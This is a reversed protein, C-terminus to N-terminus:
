RGEGALIYSTAPAPTLSCVSSGIALFLNSVAAVEQMIGAITHLQNGGHAAEQLGPATWCIL